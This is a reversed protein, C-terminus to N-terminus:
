TQLLPSEPLPQKEEQDVIYDVYDDWCLTCYFTKKDPALAGRNKPASCRCIAYWPASAPNVSTSACASALHRQVMLLHCPMSSPCHCLLVLRVKGSASLEELHHVARIISGRTFRLWAWRYAILLGHREAVAEALSRADLDMEEASTSLVLPWYESFAKCVDEHDKLAQCRCESGTEGSAHCNACFGNEGLRLYTPDPCVFPNGLPSNRNCVINLCDSDGVAGYLRRQVEGVGVQKLWRVQDTPDPRLEAEDHAYSCKIGWRCSGATRIHDRCVWCKMAQLKLELGKTAPDCM